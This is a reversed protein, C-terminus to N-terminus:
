AGGVIGGEDDAEAPRVARILPDREQYHACVRELEAVHDALAENVSRAQALAVAQRGIMEYLERETEDSM